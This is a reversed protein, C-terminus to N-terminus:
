PLRSRLMLVSSHPLLANLPRLITPNREAFGGGLKRNGCLTGASSSLDSFHTGAALKWLIAGGTLPVAHAKRHHISFTGTKVPRSAGYRKLKSGFAPPM